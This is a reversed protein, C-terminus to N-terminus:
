MPAANAADVLLRLNILDEDYEDAEFDNTELIKIQQEFFHFFTEFTKIGTDTTTDYIIDKLLNFTELDPIEIVGADVARRILMENMGEITVAYEDLTIFVVSFAMKDGYNRHKARKIFVTAEPNEQLEYGFKSLKNKLYELTIM